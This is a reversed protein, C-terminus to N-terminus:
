EMELHVKLSCIRELPTNDLIPRIVRIKRNGARIGLGRQFFIQWPFGM